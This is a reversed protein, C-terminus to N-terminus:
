EGGRIQVAIMRNTTTKATMTEDDNDGDDHRGKQQKTTIKVRPKSICDVRLMYVCIITDM